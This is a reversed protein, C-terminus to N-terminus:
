KKGGRWMQGLVSSMWDGLRFWNELINVDITPIEIESERLVHLGVPVDM